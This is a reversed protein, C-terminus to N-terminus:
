CLSVLGGGGGGFFFFLFYFYNKKKKQFKSTPPLWDRVNLHRPRSDFGPGRAGCALLKVVGGGSSRRVKVCESFNAHVTIYTPPETTICLHLLYIFSACGQFKWPLRCSRQVTSVSCVYVSIMIPSRLSGSIKSIRMCFIGRIVSFINNESIYIKFIGPLPPPTRVDGAGGGRSGRRDTDTYYPCM